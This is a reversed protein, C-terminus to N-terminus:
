PFVRLFDARGVRALYESLCERVSAAGEIDSVLAAKDADRLFSPINSKITTKTKRLNSHRRVIAELFRAEAQYHCM